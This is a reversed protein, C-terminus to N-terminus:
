PRSRRLTESPSEGFRLRYARSFEGAHAFGCAFLIQMVTTSPPATLLLRRARELRCARLFERLSCGHVARFSRQLSRLGKGTLASLQALRIPEHAHAELYEAVRRVACRDVHPAEGQLLHGHDHARTALLAGLLAERLHALVFPSRLPSELCAYGDVLLSILRSIHGGVQTRFDLEPAFVLPKRVSAGTLAELHSELTGQAIRLTLTHGEDPIRLSAERGPSLLLASRGPAAVAEGQPTSAEFTGGRSLLLVHSSELEPSHLTLRTSFTGAILSLSGLPLRNSSWTFHRVADYKMSLRVAGYLGALLARAEDADVSRAYPHDPFLLPPSVLSM